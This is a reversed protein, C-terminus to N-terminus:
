RLAVYSPASGRAPYRKGASAKAFADVLNSTVRVVVQRTRDDIQVHKGSADVCTAAAACAWRGTGAVFVGAGSPRVQYAASQVVTLPGCLIRGFSLIQMPVPSGPSSTSARDTGDAILDPLVEGTHVDAGEYGWWDSNSITWAAAPDASGGRAATGTGTSGTGTSGTGTGTSNTGTGANGRGTANASSDAQDAKACSSRLGTLRLSTSPEASSMAFARGKPLLSVQRSGTGAGFFALNTGSSGADRIATRLSATWFRSDGGILVAAAKSVLAPNQAVDYDTAYALRKGTREALEIIGADTELFGGSGYGAAYPRDFSATRKALAARNSGDNVADQSGADQSVADQSVADQSGGDQSGADQSGANKSMTPQVNEAQWTLPSALVLIKGQSSASRVTLPVYRSAEGQDLRLLYHGEPWGTTDAWGRAQWEGPNAPEPRAQLTGQWVQRAEIGDYWGIRLARIRVAGQGNVVLTVRGGALVSVAGAYAELGPKTGRTRGIRWDRSGGLRNEARVDFMAGAGAPTSSYPGVASLASRISRTSGESVSNSYRSNGSGSNRSNSGSATLSDSEGGQSVGGVAAVTAGMGVLVVVSLLRSVAV